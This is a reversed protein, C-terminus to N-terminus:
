QIIKQVTPSYLTQGSTHIVAIRFWYKVGSNLGRFTHQRQASGENIWVTASAPAEATYQHLYARAGPMKNIRITAEGPPGLEVELKEIFPIIQINREGSVQFGSNLLLSRDGNSITSVFQALEEVYALVKAKKDNKVSIMESDRGKANALAAQYEPLLSKLEALAAPPNPFNVNNELKEVIRHATTALDSERQRRYVRIITHRM